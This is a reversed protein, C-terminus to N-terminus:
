VIFLDGSVKTGVSIWLQVFPCLLRFLLHASTETGRQKVILSSRSSYARPNWPCSDPSMPQSGMSIFAAWAQLCCPLIDSSYMVICLQRGPAAPNCTARSWHVVKLGCMCWCLCGAAKETWRSVKCTFIIITPIAAVFVCLQAFIGLHETQLVPFARSYKWINVTSGKEALRRFAGM